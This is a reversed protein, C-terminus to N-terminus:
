RRLREAGEAAEKISPDLQLARQYNRLADPQQNLAEQCKALWYYGDAYTNKVTVLTNFVQMAEKIQKNDYYLFGKEMYAETYQFDNSICANFDAMAKEKRGTRAYYVGSIFYCHAAYERGLHMSAVQNALVLATSDRKEAFLNAAALLADPAPYIRIAYRLSHLAGATDRSEQQLLSKRYWFGYNLSDRRILSDMQALAGPYEGLSDLADVLQLRLGASDPHAETQRYLKEASSPIASTEESSHNRCAAVLCIALLLPICKNM